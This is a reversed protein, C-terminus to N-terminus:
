EIETNEIPNNTEIYTYRCPFVDVAEAYEIQTEIQLIYMGKDSYHKILEPRENGCEDIYPYQIQIM